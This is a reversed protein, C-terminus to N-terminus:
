FRMMGQVTVEFKFAAATQSTYGVVRLWGYTNNVLSSLRTATAGLASPVELTTTLPAVWTPPTDAASASPDAAVEVAMHLFGIATHLNRYILSFRDFDRIDVPGILVTGTSTVTAANNLLTHKVYRFSM